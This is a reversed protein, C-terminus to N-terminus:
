GFSGVENDTKEFCAWVDFGETFGETFHNLRNLGFLAPNYQFLELLPTTKGQFCPM